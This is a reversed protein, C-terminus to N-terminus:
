KPPYNKLMKDVAANIQKESSSASPNPDIVGTATGRWVLEKTEGDIFDVMLTGETYNYVDVGGYGYGYGWGGAYPYGYGYSTVDVKDVAGIHYVLLLDPNQTDISMGKKGTLDSNVASLIRKDILSNAQRAAQASTSTTTTQQPLWGFTKYKTFDATQDYDYRVTISSCGSAVIMGVLVVCMTVTRM